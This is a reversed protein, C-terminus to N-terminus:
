RGGLFLPDPRPGCLTHVLFDITSRGLQTCTRLVSSLVSQAKAGIWTRNGGWVKRNVVAPRIAQEARYNTADTGPAILFWFWQISHKALHQALQRNAECTFRGAALEELVCGLALGEDVMENASLRGAEYERRVAYAMEVLELVQRPFRVAGGVATTLIEQCRNVLHRLCQQHLAQRFCDYPSWGDHIMTGQWDLGLVGEAVEHGRGGAIEYYTATPGVLVHLWAPRGGVRWGTEDPVVWPSERVASRIADYAPECRQSTRLV